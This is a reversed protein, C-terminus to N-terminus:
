PAHLASVGVADRPQYGKVTGYTFRLTGTADPYLPKDYYIDLVEIYQQRLDNM